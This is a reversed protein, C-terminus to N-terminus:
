LHRCLHHHPQGTLSSVTINGKEPSIPVRSRAGPPGLAPQRGVSPFLKWALGQAYTKSAQPRLKAAIHPPAHLVTVPAHMTLPANSMGDIDDVDHGRAFGRGAETDDSAAVVHTAGVNEAIEIVMAIVRAEQIGIRNVDGFIGADNERTLVKGDEMVCASWHTLTADVACFSPGCRGRKPIHAKRFQRDEAHERLDAIMKKLM